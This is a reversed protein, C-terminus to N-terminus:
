YFYSWDIVMTILRWDCCAFEHPFHQETPHFLLPLPENLTHSPHLKLRLPTKQRSPLLSAVSCELRQLQISIFASAARESDCSMPASSRSANKAEASLTFHGSIRAAMAPYLLLSASPAGIYRHKSM